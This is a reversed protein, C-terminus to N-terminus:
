LEKGQWIDHKRFYAQMQNLVQRKNGSWLPAILISKPGDGTLRHIVIDQKLVCICKSLLSFYEEMTPIWFPNTHYYDAIKSYLGRTMCTLLERQELLLTIGYVIFHYGKYTTDLQLENMFEKIILEKESMKCGGVIRLNLIDM